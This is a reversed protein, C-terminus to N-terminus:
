APSPEKATYTTHDGIFVFEDGDVFFLCEMGISSVFRYTPQANPVSVPVPSVEGRSALWALKEEAPRGKLLRQVALAQSPLDLLHFVDGM